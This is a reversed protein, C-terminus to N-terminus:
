RREGPIGLIKVSTGVAGDRIKVFMEVVADGRISVFQVAHRYIFEAVIGM